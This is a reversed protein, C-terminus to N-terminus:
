HASHPNRTVSLWCHWQRHSPAIGPPLTASRNAIAATLSRSRAAIDRRREDGPSYAARVNVRLEPQRCRVVESRLQAASNAGAADFLPQGAPSCLTQFHAAGIHENANAHANQQELAPLAAIQAFPLALLTARMSSKMSADPILSSPGCAPITDSGPRDRVPEHLLRLAVWADACNSSGPRINRFAPLAKPQVVSAAHRHLTKCVSVRLGLGEAM